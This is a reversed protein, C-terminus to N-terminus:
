FLGLNRMPSGELTMDMLKVCTALQLLDALELKLLLIEFLLDPGGVARVKVGKVVEEPRICRHQDLSSFQRRDIFEFFSDLTDRVHNQDLFCHCIHALSTLGKFCGGSTM